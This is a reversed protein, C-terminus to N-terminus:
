KRFGDVEARLFGQTNRDFKIGFLVSNKQLIKKTIDFCTVLGFRLDNHYVMTRNYWHYSSIGGKGFGLKLRNDSHCHESDHAVGLKVSLLDLAKNSNLGAYLTYSKNNVTRRVDEYHM